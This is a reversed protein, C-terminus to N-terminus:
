NKKEFIPDIINGIIMGQLNNLCRTNGGCVRATGEFWQHLRHDGIAIKQSGKFSGKYEILKGPLPLKIKKRMNIGSSVKDNHARHIITKNFAIKNVNYLNGFHHIAPNFVHCQLVNEYVIQETHMAYLATHGGLSHGTLIIPTNKYNDDDKLINIIDSTQKARNKTLTFNKAKVLVADNALDILSRTNKMTADTGRHAIYLINNNLSVTVDTDSLQHLVNFGYKEAFTSQEKRSRALYAIRVSAAALGVLPGVLPGGGNTKVKKKSTARRRKNYKTNKNRKIKNTKQKM